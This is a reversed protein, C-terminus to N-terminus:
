LKWNCKGMRGLYFDIYACIIAKRKMNKDQEFSVTKLLIEINRETEAFYPRFVNKYRKGCYLNNRIIYYYRIPSYKNITYKKGDIYRVEAKEDEVNHILVARNLKIIKYDNKLLRMCYELDVQDIFLAEDYGSVKEWADLNHMAGSQIVRDYYSYESVPIGFKSKGDNILPAIVGVQNIKPFAEAFDCMIRVMNETARSDQDFTILWTFKEEIAKRAVLNIAKPLGINEHYTMYEVGPLKLLKEKLQLDEKESNDFCYIKEVQSAYTNIASIDTETYHYLIVLAAVKESMGNSEKWVVKSKGAM